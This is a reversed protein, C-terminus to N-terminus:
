RLLKRYEKRFGANEFVIEEKNELILDIEGWRIAFNKELVVYGNKEYRDRALSEWQYGKQKLTNM